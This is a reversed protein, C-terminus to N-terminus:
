KKKFVLYHNPYGWGIKSQYKNYNKPNINTFVRLLTNLYNSKKNSKKKLIKIIEKAKSFSKIKRILVSFVEKIVILEQQNLTKNENVFYRELNKYNKLIKNNYIKNSMIVKHWVSNPKKYTPYSSYFRLNNKKMIKFIDNTNWLTKHLFNNLLFQDLVYKDFSRTHNIKKFSKFLFKKAVLISKRICFIKKKDLYYRLIFYKIYESFFGVPNHYNFILYGGNKIFKCSKDLYKKRLKISSLFNEMIVFDYVKSTNYNEIRKIFIKCSKNHKRFNEKLQSTFKKNPEVCTIKAKWLSYILSKEGSAAGFELLSKNKFIELPLNLHDKFLSERQLNLKKLQEKKNIKHEVPNFQYIKYIEEINKLNNIRSIIKNM